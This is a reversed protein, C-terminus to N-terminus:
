AATNAAIRSNRAKRSPRSGSPLTHEKIRRPPKYDPDRIPGEREDDSESDSGEAADRYAYQLAEEKDAAREM